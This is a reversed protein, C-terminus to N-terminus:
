YELSVARRLDGYPGMAVPSNDMNVNRGAAGVASLARKKPIVKSLRDKQPKGEM